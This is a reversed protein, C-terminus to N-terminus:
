KESSDVTVAKEPVWAPEHPLLKAPLQVPAKGKSDSPNMTVCFGSHNGCQRIEGTKSDSVVIVMDDDALKAVEPDKTEPAGKIARWLRDANYIGIGAYRERSAQQEDSSSETFPRCGTLMTSLGLVISFTLPVLLKTKM